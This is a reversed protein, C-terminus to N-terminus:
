NYNTLTIACAFQVNTTINILQTFACVFDMRNVHSESQNEGSLKKVLRLTLATIKESKDFDM